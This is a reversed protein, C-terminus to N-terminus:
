GTQQQELTEVRRELLADGSTREEEERELHKVFGDVSTLLSQVGEKIQAVDSKVVEMDTKLSAVNATLSSTEGHIIERVNEKTLDPM